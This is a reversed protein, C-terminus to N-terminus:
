MVAVLIGLIVSIIIILFAWKLSKFYMKRFRYNPNEESQISYYYRNKIKVIITQKKLFNFVKKKDSSEFIHLLESDSIANSKDIAKKKTFTDKIEKIIHDNAILYKNTIGSALSTSVTIDPKIGLDRKISEKISLAGLITFILSFAVDHIIGWIFDSSKYAEIVYSFNLGYGDKVFFLLPAALFSLIIFITITIIWTIVYSKKSPKGGFLKYGYYVGHPIIFTLLFVIYNVYVYILLWPIAALVGGVLAGFIIKYNKTEM